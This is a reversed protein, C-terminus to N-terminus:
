KKKIVTEIPSPLHWHLGATKETRVHKGFRLVVAQEGGTSDVTYIGTVFWLGVVVIVAIVGLSNIIKKIM